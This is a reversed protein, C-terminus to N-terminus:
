RDVESLIKFIFSCGSLAPTSCYMRALRLGHLPIQGRGRSVRRYLGPVGHRLVDGREHGPVKHVAHRGRRRHLRVQQPEQGRLAAEPRLADAARIRGAHRHIKHHHRIRLHFPRPFLFRKLSSIIHDWRTSYSLINVSLVCAFVKAPIMTVSYRSGHLAAPLLIVYTFVAAIVAGKLSKRIDGAPLMALVVVIYALMLYVFTFHRSSSVLVVYLLTFLLKFGPSVWLLDRSRGSQQKIKSILGIFSLISKDIFRDSDTPPSYNEPQALWQPVDTM